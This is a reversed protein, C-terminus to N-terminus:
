LGLVRCERRLEGIAANALRLLDREGEQALQTLRTSLRERLEDQDAHALQPDASVFQWSKDFAFRVLDATEADLTDVMM